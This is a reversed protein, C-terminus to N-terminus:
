GALATLEGIGAGAGALAMGTVGQGITHTTGVLAAGVCLLACGMLAIYRRGMLDQLYGSFPCTAAVALTYAVPLWGITAANGISATIFQLTGGVFYLPIQSGTQILESLTFCWLLPLPSSGVYLMVLSVAAIRTKLNWVVKGDSEDGKVAYANRKSDTPVEDSATSPSVDEVQTIDAKDNDDGKELNPDM